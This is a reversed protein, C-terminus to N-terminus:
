SKVFTDVATKEKFKITGWFNFINPISFYFSYDDLVKFDGFIFVSM